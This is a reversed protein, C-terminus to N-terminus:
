TNNYKASVALIRELQLRLKVCAQVSGLFPSVFMITVPSNLSLLVPGTDVHGRGTSACLNLSYQRTSVLERDSKLRGRDQLTVRSSSPGGPAETVKSASCACFHQSVEPPPQAPSRFLGQTIVPFCALSPQGSGPSSAGSSKVQCAKHKRCCSPRHCVSSNLHLWEVNTRQFIGFSSTQSM